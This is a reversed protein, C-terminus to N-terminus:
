AGAGFFDPQFQSEAITNYFWPQLGALLAGGEYIQYFPNPMLVLDKQSNRNLLAQSFAFLAERTGNVPLVHQEPDLSEAPLKFRRSLWAAISQRLAPSGKTLPYNAIGDLNDRMTQLVFEPPPHKPEGIGLAIPSLAANAVVGDRLQTLKKFPYPQLRALDSNM